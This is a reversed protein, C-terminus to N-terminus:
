QKNTDDSFIYANNMFAYLFMRKDYFFFTNIHLFVDANKTHSLRINNLHYPYKEPRYEDNEGMNRGAILM